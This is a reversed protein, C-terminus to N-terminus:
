NAGQMTQTIGTNQYICWNYQNLIAVGMKRYTYIEIAQDHLVRDWIQTQGELVVKVIKENGTPLVYAIQPDITTTENNNDVYSQPIQVIPTGRFLQIYGTNHIADIDNPHYVGGYNGNAPVPVIADAGMAAVFEPPAFIVANNGYSKAISCLKFMKDSEFKNSTVKNASPRGTANLSARLAKQIEGYIAQVASDTLVNVYESLTEVGDLMHEFDLTAGGGIAQVSVDFTESDLRFTEYVGSLGVQTLFQRARAKGIPRRFALKQGQQVTVIEAISALQDTIRGPVVEDVAQTIVEYIDYRNKMFLNISGGVKRLEEALADNVNEVTYNEPATKKVANLALEKMIKFDAM